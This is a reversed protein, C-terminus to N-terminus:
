ITGTTICRGGGTTCISKDVRPARVPEPLIADIAITAIERWGNGVAISLAMAEHIRGAVDERKGVIASFMKRLEEAGDRGAEIARLYEIASVVRLATPDKGHIPCRPSKAYGAFNTGWETYIPSCDCTIDTTAHVSIRIGM